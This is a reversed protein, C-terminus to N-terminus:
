SKTNTAIGADAAIQTIAKLHSRLMPLSQAAFAKAEADQGSSSEKKFLGVAQRHAKLQSKIYSKDFTDGSLVELKAKTAMDSVSASTPLDVGQATAISKLKDNAAGHDKVMRAGFDKVAQSNGKSAALNGDDVEAMGAEAATKYFSADPSDALVALPAAALVLSLLATKM